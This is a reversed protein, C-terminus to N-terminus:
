RDLSERAERAGRADARPPAALLLLRAGGEREHEQGEPEVARGPSAAAGGGDLGGRGRGGGCVLVVPWERARSPARRGTGADARGRRVDRRAGHGALRLSGGGGPERARAPQGSGCRGAPRPRLPRRVTGGGARDRHGRRRWCGREAGGRARLPNAGGRAHVEMGFPRCRSAPGRAGHAPVGRDADRHARQGVDRQDADRGHVRGSPAGQAVRVPLRPSRLRGFPLQSRDARECCLQSRPRRDLRLHGRRRQARDLRSPGLLHGLNRPPHAPPQRLITGAQPDDLSPVRTERILGQRHVGEHVRRLPGGTREM